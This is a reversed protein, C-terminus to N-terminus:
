RFNASKGFNGETNPFTREGHHAIDPADTARHFQAAGPQGRWLPGPGNRTQSGAARNVPPAPNRLTRGHGALGIGITVMPLTRKPLASGSASIAPGTGARFGRAHAPSPTRASPSRPGREPDPEDVLGREVLRVAGARLARARCRARRRAASRRRSGRSSEAQRHQGVHVLRRLARADGCATSTSCIGANRQRWVSRSTAAASVPRTTLTLFPWNRAGHSM